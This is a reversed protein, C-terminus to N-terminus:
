VASCTRDCEVCICQMLLQQVDCNVDSFKEDSAAICWVFFFAYHEGIDNLIVGQRREKMKAWYIKTLAIYGWVKLDWGRRWGPPPNPNAFCIFFSFLVFCILRAVMFFM